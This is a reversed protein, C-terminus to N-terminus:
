SSYLIFEELFQKLLGLFIFFLGLLYRLLAWFYFIVKFLVLDKLWFEAMWWAVRPEYGGRVLEHRAGHAELSRLADCALTEFFCVHLDNSTKFLLLLLVISTKFVFVHFM